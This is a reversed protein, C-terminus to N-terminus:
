IELCADDTFYANLTPHCHSGVPAGHQSVLALDSLSKNPKSNIKCLFIWLGENEAANGIRILMLSLRSDDLRKEHKKRDRGGIIMPSGYNAMICIDDLNLQFHEMHNVFSDPPLNTGRIREWVDDVM